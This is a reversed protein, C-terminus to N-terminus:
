NDSSQIIKIDSYNCNINTVVNDSKKDTFNIREKGGWTSISFYTINEYTKGDYKIKLGKIPKEKSEVM